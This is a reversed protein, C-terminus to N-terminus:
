RQCSLEVLNIHPHSQPVIVFLQHASNMREKSQNSHSWFHLIYYKLIKPPSSSFSFIIHRTFLWRAMNILYLFGKSRIIVTPVLFFSHNQDMSVYSMITIVKKGEKRNSRAVLTEISHAFIRDLVSNTILNTPNSIQSHSILPHM